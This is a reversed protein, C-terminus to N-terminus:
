NNETLAQLEASSLANDYYSVKRITGSFPRSGTTEGGIFMTNADTSVGSWNTTVQPTEGDLSSSYTADQYSYSTAMKHPDIATTTWNHLGSYNTGSWVASRVQTEQTIWWNRIGRATGDNIGVVVADSIGNADADVYITGSEVNYWDAYTIKDIYVIDHLRTNSYSNANDASRTADTNVGTYIFSSVTNSNSELQAGWLLLGSSNDGPNQEVLDTESVFIDYLMQGTGSSSPYTVGSISCRYWGNGVNEMEVNKVISGTSESNSAPEGTAINFWGQFSVTNTVDYLRIYLFDYANTGGEPLKAYVSITHPQSYNLTFAQRIHKGGSAINTRMFFTNGSTGDPNIGYDGIFVSTASPAWNSTTSMASNLAHNTTSHELILGTEVWKRGDYRYGYRPSNIPATRLIGNEDYYTAKSARSTFRDDSPMYTSAFDGLELQAGWISVEDGAAPNNDPVEIGIYATTTSGTTFTHSVRTWESPLYKAISENTSVNTTRITYHKGVANGWAKIWFSFTYTGNLTLNNQYFYPDGSNNAVIQKHANFTGDPSIVSNYYPDSQPNSMLSWDQPRNSKAFINTRTEEILLGKSEGTVPDHDFRPENHTAYCINGKNNYYTANSDRYFTIRSDLQKSNAFDLNLTPRISHRVLDTNYARTATVEGDSRVDFLTTNDYTSVRFSTTDADDGALIKLGGGNSNHTNKIISIWNGSAEGVVELKVGSSLAGFDGIGVGTDTIIMKQDGSAQPADSSGINNKFIIDGTSSTSGIIVDLDHYGVKGRNSGQPGIDIHASTGSVHLLADPSDTGIGVNGSRDIRVREQSVTQFVLEGSGAAPANFIVENDTVDDTSTTISLGRNANSGNVILSTSTTQGSVNINKNFDWEDNTGDYIITANAGDITIGAGNAATADAAGSALTINLDDVSLTTSNITTTTGDVQLNGAIVVTGTNDGVGAPDITFTAPGALYGTLTTNGFTPNDNPLVYSQLDSIQSETISLAAEHQTVMAQTVHADAMTFTKTSFDLTQHLKDATIEGDSINAITISGPALKADTVSDDEISSTKIKDIAM